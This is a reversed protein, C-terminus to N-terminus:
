DEVEDGVVGELTQEMERQEEAKKPNAKLDLKEKNPRRVVGSEGATKQIPAVNSGEQPPLLWYFLIKEKAERSIDSLLIKILIDQNM